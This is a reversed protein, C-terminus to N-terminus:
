ADKRGEEWQRFKEQERYQLKLGGEMEGLYEMPYGYRECIRFDLYGTTTGHKEPPLQPDAHLEPEVHQLDVVLSDRARTQASEDFLDRLTTWVRVIEPETMKDSLADAAETLKVATAPDNGKEIKVVETSLAIEYLWRRRTWQENAAIYSPDNPEPLLPAASGKGTDRRTLPPTPRPFLRSITATESDKLARVKFTAGRVTVDKSNLEQALELISM